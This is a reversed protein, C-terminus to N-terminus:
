KQGPLWPPAPHPRHGTTTWLDNHQAPYQEPVPINDKQGTVPVTTEPGKSM